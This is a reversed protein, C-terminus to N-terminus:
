KTDGMNNLICFDAYNLGSQVTFGTNQYVIQGSTGKGSFLKYSGESPWSDLRAVLTIFSRDGTCYGM